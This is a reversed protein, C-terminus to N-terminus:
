KRQWKLDQQLLLERQVVDALPRVPLRAHADVDVVALVPVEPVFDLEAGVLRGRDNATRNIREDRRCMQWQQGLAFGIVLAEPGFRHVKGLAARQVLVAGTPMRM